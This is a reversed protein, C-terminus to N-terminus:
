RGVAFRLPPAEPGGAPVRVTQAPHADPRRMGRHWVAVRYEGPPLQDLVAQGSRDTKAFHPTDVVLVYAVMSDHINCGLVALGAKDFVVPQSPVGTYLKLEFRKIPSFSYVDHAVDDRNPFGIRTGTQVVTVLPVFERDIQDISTRAGATAAPAPAGAVMPLAYAVADALPAGAADTVAVRLAAARADGPWAAPLALAALAALGSALGRRLSGPVRAIRSPAPVPAPLPM